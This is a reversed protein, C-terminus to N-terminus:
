DKLLTWTYASFWTSPKKWDFKVNRVWTGCEIRWGNDFYSNSNKWDHCKPCHEELFFASLFKTSSRTRSVYGCKNCVAKYEVM